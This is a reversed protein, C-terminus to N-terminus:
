FFLLVMHESLLIRSVHEIYAEEKGFQIWSQFRPINDTLLYMQKEKILLSEGIMVSCANLNHLSLQLYIHNYGSLSCETPEGSADMFEILIQCHDQFYKSPLNYKSINKHNKSAQLIADYAQDKATTLFLSSMNELITTM